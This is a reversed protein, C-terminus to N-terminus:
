ASPVSAVLQENWYVAYSVRAVPKLMAAVPCYKSFSLEAARIFNAQSEADGSGRYSLRIATFVKPHSEAADGEATMEFRDLRKGMKQMIAAVDMGTCGTLAVLILEKPRAGHGDDLVGDMAVQHGSGSRGSFRLGQEWLASAQEM